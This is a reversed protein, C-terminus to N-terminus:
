AASTRPPGPCADHSRRRHARRARGSRYLAARRALAARRVGNWARDRAQDAAALDLDRRFLRDPNQPRREAEARSRAARRVPGAEASASSTARRPNVALVLSALVASAPQRQVKVIRFPLTRTTVSGIEMAPRPTTEGNPSEAAANRSASRSPAVAIAASGLNTDNPQRELSAARTDPNSGAWHTAGIFSRRM